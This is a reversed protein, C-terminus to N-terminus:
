RIAKPVRPTGKFRSQASTKRGQDNSTGYKFDGIYVFNVKDVREQMLDVATTLYNTYLIKAMHPEIGVKKGEEAAIDEVNIAEKRLKIM